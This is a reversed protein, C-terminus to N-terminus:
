GAGIARRGDRLPADQEDLVLRRNALQQTEMQRQGAELDFLHGVARAASSRARASFNSRITSSTITGPRSPMVSHRAIRDCLALVALATIISVARALSASM